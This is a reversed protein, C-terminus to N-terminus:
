VTKTWTPCLFLSSSEESMASQANTSQACITRNLSAALPTVKKAATDQLPRKLSTPDLSVSLNPRALKLLGLEATQVGHPWSPMVASLLQHSKMTHTARANSVAQMSRQTAAFLTEKLAASTSQTPGSLEQLAATTRTLTKMAHATQTPRSHTKQAATFQHTASVTTTARGTMLTHHKM